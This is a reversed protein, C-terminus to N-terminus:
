QRMCLMKPLPQILLGVALDTAAVHVKSNSMQSITSCCCDTCTSCCLKGSHVLICILQDLCPMSIASAINVHHVQHMLVSCYHQTVKETDVYQKLFLAATIAGGFRGGLNTMDAIPSKCLEWYDDEVPM